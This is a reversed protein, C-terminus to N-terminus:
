KFDELGIEKEVSGRFVKIRTWIALGVFLITIASFVFASWELSSNKDTAYATWFGAAIPALIVALWTFLEYHKLEEAQVLRMSIKEPLSITVRTKKSNKNNDSKTETM